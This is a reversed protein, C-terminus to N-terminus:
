HAVALRRVFQGEPTDYCVFYLGAPARSGGLRGEWTARHHGAPVIGDMLVAVTRGQLDHISLRVRSERPVAFGVQTGGSTPNPSLRALAFTPAPADDGPVSLPGIIDFAADSLDSGVNANTDHAIVRLYASSTTPGTVTWDYTGTNPVALAINEFPGGPGSRSLQLDVGTVSGLADSATWTLSVTGGMPETEGGNPSVVHVEPDILDGLNLKGYGWDKSPVAGTFGDVLARTQLYAKVQGPNWAGFKQLLLAVAGTVHPASLSTGSRMRHNMGDDLFESGAPPAPCPHSVDFSTTSGIATGPATLDPKQRGDRTM